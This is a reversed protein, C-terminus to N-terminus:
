SITYGSVTLQTTSLDATNAQPIVSIATGPDAYLNVNVTDAFTVDTGTSGTTMKPTPFEVSELVGNDYYTIQAGMLTVSGDITFTVGITQLVDTSGAPATVSVTSSDTSATKTFPTGPLGPVATVTAHVTPTGTIRVTPTGSVSVIQAGKTTVKALRSPHTGDAISVSSHTAAFVGVPALVVAVCVGLVMITIQRGSVRHEKVDRGKVNILARRVVGQVANRVVRWRTPVIWLKM